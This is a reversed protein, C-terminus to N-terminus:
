QSTWWAYGAGGAVIVVAIGVIWKWVHSKGQTSPSQVPSSQPPPEEQEERSVHARWHRHLAAKSVSFQAAIDRFTGTELAEDIAAHEPHACITCLRGM